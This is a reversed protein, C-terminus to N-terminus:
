RMGVRVCKSVCAYMCKLLHVRRGDYYTYRIVTPLTPSAATLGTVIDFLFFRRTMVDSEDCVDASASLSNVAQGGSKVGVIRIPIPYMLGTERPNVLFLEYLLQEKQLLSTLDCGLDLRMAHAFLQGRTDMSSGGGTSSLPAKVGCYGFLTELGSLGLYTGNLTYSAVKYELFFDDLSLHSKYGSDKCVASGQAPYLLWPLQASWSAVGEWDKFTRGALVRSYTICATASDDYLQLVCLNALTQCDALNLTGGFYTCAAAARTFYHLLTLSVQPGVTRYVVTSAQQETNLFPTALSTLVCRQPGLVAQGVLSYGVACSCVVSSGVVTFVM